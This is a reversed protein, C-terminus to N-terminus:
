KRENIKYKTATINFIESLVNVSFQKRQPKIHYIHCCSEFQIQVAGYGIKCQLASNDENKVHKM